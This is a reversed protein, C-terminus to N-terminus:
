RQVRLREADLIRRILESVSIGLRAAEERLWTDLPEPLSILKRRMDRAYAM